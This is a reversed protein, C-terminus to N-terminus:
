HPGQEGSGTLPVFRVQMLTRRDFGGEPLRRWLQLEQRDSSPGVPLVLRGGPALQELLPTPVRRPAASVLIADFPAAEPWGLAGDGQRVHVNTYGLEVLTRQAREALEPIIEIGRVDANVPLMEALVALAYGSGTGVELVREVGKLELAEAMAAVVFPQSITQGWGIDLPRDAQAEAQSQEPVFFHRPVRAFAALVRPDRIGQDILRRVLLSERAGQGDPHVISM